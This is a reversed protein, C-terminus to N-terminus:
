QPVADDRPLLGRRFPVNDDILEAIPKRWAGERGERVLIDCHESCIPHVSSRHEDCLLRLQVEGELLYRAYHTARSRCFHLDPMLHECEADCQEKDLQSTTDAPVSDGSALIYRQTTHSPVRCYPSGDKFFGRSTCRAKRGLYGVCRSVAFPPALNAGHHSGCQPVCWEREEGERHGCAEARVRGERYIYYKCKDTCRCYYNCRAVLIHCQRSMGMDHLLELELGKAERRIYGGVKVKSTRSRKRPPDGEEGEAEDSDEDSDDDSDESDAAYDAADDAADDGDESVDDDVVIVEDERSRKRRVRAGITEEVADDGDDAASDDDEDEAADDEAADDDEVVDGDEAADEVAYDEDEIGAGPARPRPTINPETDSGSCAGDSRCKSVWPSPSRVKTMDDVVTSARSTAETMCGDDREQEPRPDRDVDCDMDSVSEADPSDEFISLPPSKREPNPSIVEPVSIDGDRDSRPTPVAHRLRKCGQVLVEGSGHECAKVANTGLDDCDM